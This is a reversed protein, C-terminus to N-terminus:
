QSGFVRFLGALQQAEQSSLETLPKQFYYQSAQALGVVDDGFPLTNLLVQNKDVLEMKREYRLELAAQSVQQLTNKPEPLILEPAAQVFSFAQRVTVPIDDIAVQQESPIGSLMLVFSPASFFLILALVHALILIILLGFAGLRLARRM